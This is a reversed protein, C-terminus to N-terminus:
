KGMPSWIGLGGRTRERATSWQRGLAATRFGDQDRLNPKFGPEKLWSVARDRRPGLARGIKPHCAQMGQRQVM